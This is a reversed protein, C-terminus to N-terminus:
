KQRKTSAKKETETETETETEAEAEAEAEVEVELKQVEEESDAKALKRAILKEAVEDPVDHKGPKLHVTKGKSDKVSVLPHTIKIIAM